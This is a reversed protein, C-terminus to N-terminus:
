APGADRKRYMSVLGEHWISREKEMNIRSCFLFVVAKYKGSNKAISLNDKLFFSLVISFIVLKVM